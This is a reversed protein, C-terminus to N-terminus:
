CFICQWTRDGFLAMQKSLLSHYLYSAGENTTYQTVSRAGLYAVSLIIRKQVWFNFPKNGQSFEFKNCTMWSKLYLIFSALTVWNKVRKKIVSKRNISGLIGISQFCWCKESSFFISKKGETSLEVFTDPWWPM